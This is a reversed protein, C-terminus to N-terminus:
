DIPAGCCSCMKFAKACEPCIRPTGTNPHMKTEGCHRCTYDTFAQGSIRGGRLHFCYRCEQRALRRDKHKDTEYNKLNKQLADLRAKNGDAARKQDKEDWM